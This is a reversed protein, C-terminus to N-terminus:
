KETVQRCRKMVSMRLYECMNTCQKKNEKKNQEFNVSGAKRQM